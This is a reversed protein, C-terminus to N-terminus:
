VAKQYTIKDNAQNTEETGFDWKERAKAYMTARCDSIISDLKSETAKIIQQTTSHAQFLGNIYQNLSQNNARALKVLQAHIAPSTRVIFKGSPLSDDERTPEPIPIGEKLYYPFLQEKADEFSEIAEQKTDGVGYFAYSDLDRSYAKYRVEGEDEVRTVILDYDLSLYYTIDKASM